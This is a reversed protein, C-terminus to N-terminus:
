KEEKTRTLTELFRRASEDPLSNGFMDVAYNIKNIERHLNVNAVSLRRNKDLLNEVQDKLELLEEEAEIKERLVREMEPSLKPIVDGWDFDYEELIRDMPVATGYNGSTGNFLGVCYDNGFETTYLGSGSDGPGGIPKGSKSFIRVTESTFDGLVSDTMTVLGEGVIYGENFGTTAGNFWVAQGLFTDRVAVGLEADSPTINSYLSIVAADLVVGPPKTEVCEGYVDGNWKFVDGETPAVHYNTLQAKSGNPLYVVPGGSGSWGHTTSVLKRSQGKVDSRRSIPRIEIIDIDYGFMNSPFPKQGSLFLQAKNLKQEVGIILVEDDMDIKGGSERYGFEVSTIKTKPYAFRLERRIKKLLEIRERKM